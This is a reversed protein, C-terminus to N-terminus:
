SALRAGLSVKKLFHWVIKVTCICLTMNDDFSVFQPALVAERGIFNTFYPPFHVLLKGDLRLGRGKPTAKFRGNAMRSYRFEKM